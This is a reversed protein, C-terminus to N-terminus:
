NCVSEEDCAEFRSGEAQSSLGQRLDNFRKHFVIKLQNSQPNQGLLAPM